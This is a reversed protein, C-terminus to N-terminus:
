LAFLQVLGSKRDQAYGANRALQALAHHQEPLSETLVFQPEHPMNGIQQWFLKYADLGDTGAFLALGPEFTAAKNVPFHEPVYPLNALLVDTTDVNQLLDSEGFQVPAHLAKANNQAIHLAEHSIDYGNVHADPLELAATIALCGSGTGIDAIHAGKPLPLGKLLDIIAESEPRPVLVHNNMLFERGYFAAKGRIYALPHHQTREALQQALKKYQEATLEQETHALISSRDIGLVDELLVLCDLRGTAVGAEQLVTTNSQLFEGVTM